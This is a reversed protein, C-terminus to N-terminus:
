KNINSDFDLLNPTSGVGSFLSRRSSVRSTLTRNLESAADDDLYNIDSNQREQEMSYFQEKKKHFIVYYVISPVVQMSIIKLLFCLVKRFFTNGSFMEQCMEDSTSVVHALYDWTFMIFAGAIGGSVILIIDFRETAISESKLKDNQVAPQKLEWSLREVIQFAVFGQVLTLMILVGSMVVWDILRCNYGLNFSTNIIESGDGVAIVFWMFFNVGQLFYLFYNIKKMSEADDLWNIRCLVELINISIWILLNRITALVFFEQFLFYYMTLIFTQCMALM